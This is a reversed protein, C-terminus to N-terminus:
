GAAIRNAPAKIRKSIKQTLIKTNEIIASLAQRGNRAAHGGGTVKDRFFLESLVHDIDPAFEVVPFGVPCSAPECYVMINQRYWPEVRQDDFITPRICDIICYGHSQFRRAWYSQWQENIHNTGSQGKIAASFVVVPAAEVLTSVLAGASSEPLHEAVELSIALDYRKRATPRMLNQSEFKDSPILLQEQRIYDGDIGLIDEVGRHSFERLWGGVGCGFDVVSKPGFLKLILPVVISASRVSGDIHNQFFTAGYFETTM